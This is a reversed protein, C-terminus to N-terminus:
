LCDKIGEPLDVKAEWELIEKARTPDQPIHQIDGFREPLYRVEAQFMKAVDNMSWSTSHALDIADGCSDSDMAARLGRVIDSVHTYHRTQNGDGTIEVYGKERLTKRLSAFVNPSPGLESQRPGYVNSYRLSLNSVGYLENYVKGWMEGMEKSARYPTQAAYVVNSSSLITRPIKHQRALELVNLTGGVNVRNTLLPDSITQPTRAIAAMHYIGEFPGWAEIVKSIAEYDTIDEKVRAAKPNIQDYFGSALNDVVMVYNHEVLADVLHSGIFGAGGTVIYSKM